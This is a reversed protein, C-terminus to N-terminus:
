AICDSPWSMKQHTYNRLRTDERQLKRRLTALLTDFTDCSMRIQRYFFEEQINRRHFHIEFWSNCSRPLNLYYPHPGRWRRPVFRNHYEPVMQLRVLCLRWQCLLLTAVVEAPTSRIWPLFFCCSSYLCYSASPVPEISASEQSRMYGKGRVTHLCHHKNGHSQM